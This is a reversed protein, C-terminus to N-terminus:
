MVALSCSGSLTPLLGLGQKGQAESRVLLAPLRDLLGGLFRSRCRGWVSEGPGRPRHGVTQCM